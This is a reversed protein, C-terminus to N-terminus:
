ACIGFACFFVSPKVTNKASKPDASMFAELLINPFNVGPFEGIVSIDTQTNDWTFHQTQGHFLNVFGTGVIIILAFVKAYTFYDQAFSFSKCQFSTWLNINLGQELSNKNHKKKL